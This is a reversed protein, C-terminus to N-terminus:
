LVVHELVRVDVLDVRVAGGQYVNNAEKVVDTEVVFAIDLVVVVATVVYVQRLHAYLNDLIWLDPLCNLM